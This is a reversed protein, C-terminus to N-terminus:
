QFRWKENDMFGELNLCKIKFYNCINPIKPANPKASGDPKFGETAVVTLNEVKAKAIVFPDAVPGGDLIKRKEIL